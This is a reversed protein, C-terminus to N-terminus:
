ILIFLLFYYLTNGFNYLLRLSPMKFKIFNENLICAKRICNDFLRAINIGNFYWGKIHSCISTTTLKNGLLKLSYYTILAPEITNKQIFYM